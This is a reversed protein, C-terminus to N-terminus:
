RRIITIDGKIVEGERTDLRLVYYYTGEVINEGKSNQGGWNNDYPSIQFLVDGWRNFIILESDPFGDPEREIQPVIFFDNSGDGNPTIANPTAALAVELDISAFGECGNIDTIIVEVTTNNLFSASVESCNFCDFLNSPFWEITVIDEDPISTLVNFTALEGTELDTDSVQIETQILAPQSLTITTDWTCEFEDTISLVYTDPALDSFTPVLDSINEDLAYRFPSSGGVVELVEITGDEFDNCSPAQIDFFASTPPNTNESILVTDTDVCNNSDDTVFLIYNGPLSITLTTNNSLVRGTEDQWEYTIDEGSASGEADITISANDCDLIQNQLMVVEPLDRNDLIVVTDLTVCSNSTDTLALFYIGPMGAQATFTTADSLLLGTNTTWEVAVSNEPLQINPSIPIFDDICDIELGIPLDVVPFLKDDTIVISQNDQCQNTTDLVSLQYNGAANILAFPTSIGELINGAETTWEYIFNDGMSTNEGGITIEENICTILM